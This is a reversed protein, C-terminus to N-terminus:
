DRWCKQREREGMNKGFYVSSKQLNIVQGLAEKYNKLIEEFSDVYNINTEM